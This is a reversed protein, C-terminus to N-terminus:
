YKDLWKTTLGDGKNPLQENCNRNNTPLPSLERKLVNIKENKLSWKASEKDM